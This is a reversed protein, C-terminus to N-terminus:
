AAGGGGAGGMWEADSEGDAAAARPGLVEAEFDASARAADGESGVGGAEDEDDLGFADLADRVPRRTPV